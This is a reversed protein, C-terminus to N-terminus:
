RPFIVSDVGSGRLTQPPGAALAGESYSESESGLRRSLYDGPTRKIVM